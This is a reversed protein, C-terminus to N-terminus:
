CHMTECAANRQDVEGLEAAAELVTVDWRARAVARITDDDALHEEFPRSHEVSM